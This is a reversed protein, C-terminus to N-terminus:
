AVQNSVNISSTPCIAVCAGCGNCLTTDLNPQAVRGVELRFQIAM